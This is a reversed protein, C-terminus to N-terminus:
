RVNENILMKRYQVYGRFNGCWGYEVEDDVIERKENYVPRIIAYHSHEEDTMCQAAHEFPSAHLPEATSLEDSKSIYKQVTWETLDHGAVTYSTRAAMISSIKAAYPILDADIDKITLGFQEFIQHKYPMHWDGGELEEPYSYGWADWIAEALDMMHIEATAKNLLRWKLDTFQKGMPHEAIFDVRSKFVKGNNDVYRPCRVAFFNNWETATIIVTHYMFSELIRNSIQKTIGSDVLDQSNEIAQKSLLKWNNIFKLSEEESYYAFGQMGSHEKQWAVPTFPTKQISKIMKEAPIARSSASNRSFMRHTNLEALIWRPMTVLVSMIEEGKPSVSHAVIEAKIKM